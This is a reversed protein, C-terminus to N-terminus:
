IAVRKDQIADKGVQFRETGFAISVTGFDIREAGFHIGGKGFGFVGWKQVIKTCDTAFHCKRQSSVVCASHVRLLFTRHISLSHQKQLTFFWAYIGSFL